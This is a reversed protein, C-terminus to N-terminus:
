VCIRRAKRGTRFRHRAIDDNRTRGGRRDERLANVPMSWLKRDILCNHSGLSSFRKELLTGRLLLEASRSAAITEVGRKRSRGTVNGSPVIVPVIVGANAFLGQM